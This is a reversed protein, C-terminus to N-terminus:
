RESRATREGSEMRREEKGQMCDGSHTTGTGYNTRTLGVGIGCWDWVLGVGLGCLRHSRQPIPTPSRQTQQANSRQKDIIRGSRILLCYAIPLRCLRSYSHSFWSRWKAAKTRQAERAGQAEAHFLQRSPFLPVSLCVFLSDIFDTCLLSGPQGM